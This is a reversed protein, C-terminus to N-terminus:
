APLYETTSAGVVPDIALVDVGRQITPQPQALVAVLFNHLGTLVQVPPIILLITLSGGVLWVGIRVIFLFSLLILIACVVIDLM